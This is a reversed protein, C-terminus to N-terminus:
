RRSPADLLAPVERGRGGALPRQHEADLRGRELPDRRVFRAQVERRRSALEAEDVTVRRPDVRRASTRRDLRPPALSPDLELERGLHERVRHGATSSGTM